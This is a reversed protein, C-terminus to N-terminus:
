AALKGDRMRRLVGSGTEGFDRSANKTANRDLWALAKKMQGPDAERVLMVVDSRGMRVTVNRVSAADPQAADGASKARRPEQKATSAWKQLLM